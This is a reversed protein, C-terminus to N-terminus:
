DDLIESAKALLEVSMEPDSDEIEGSYLVMATAIMYPNNHEAIKKLQGFFEDHSRKGKPKELRNMIKELPIIAITKDAYTPYKEFMNKIRNEKELTVSKLKPYEKKYLNLINKQLSPKDGRFDDPVVVFIWSDEINQKEEVSRKPLAVIPAEEEAVEEEPPAEEVPAETIPVGMETKKKDIYYKLEKKNKIKDLIETNKIKDIAKNQVFFDDTSNIVNLLVDDTVDPRNILATLEKSNLLKYPNEETVKTVPEPQKQVLPSKLSQNMNKLEAAEKNKAEIVKPDQSLAIKIEDPTNSNQWVRFRVEPSKSKALETLITPDKILKTSFRIQDSITSPDSAINFLTNQTTNDNSIVGSRVSNNKYRSLIDLIEPDNINRIKTGIEIPALKSLNEESLDLPVEGLPEAPTEVPIEATPEPQAVPAKQVVEPTVPAVPASVSEPTMTPAEKSKNKSGAPRGRGKKTKAEPAIEEVKEVIAENEVPTETFIAKPETFSQLVKPLSFMNITLPNNNKDLINFIIDGNDLEAVSKGFADYVLGQSSHAWQDIVKSLEEPNHLVKFVTEIQKIDKQQTETLEDFSKDAPAKRQPIDLNPIEQPKEVPLVEKVDPKVATEQSQIGMKASVEEVSKQVGSDLGKAAMNVFFKISQKYTTLFKNNLRAHIKKINNFEKIWNEFKGSARAYGMRNFAALTENAANAANNVLTDMVRRHLAIQKAYAKELPDGFLGRYIEKLGAQKTQDEKNLFYELAEPEEVEFEKTPLVSLEQAAEDGAIIIKQLVDLLLSVGYASDIYKHRKAGNEAIELAHKIGIGNTEGGLAIRRLEKDTEKLTEIRNGYEEGSFLNERIKQPIVGLNYKHKWTLAQAESLKSM